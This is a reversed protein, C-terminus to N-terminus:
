SGRPQRGAKECIAVPPQPRSDIGGDGRDPARILVTRACGACFMRPQMSQAQSLWTSSGFFLGLWCRPQAKLLMACRSVFQSELTRADFSPRVGETGGSGRMKCHQRHNGPQLIRDSSVSGWRFGRRLPSTLVGYSAGKGILLYVIELGGKVLGGHFRLTIPGAM